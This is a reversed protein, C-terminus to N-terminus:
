QNTSVIITYSYEDLEILIASYRIAKKCVLAYHKIEGDNPTVSQIELADTDYKFVVSEPNNIVPYQSGGGASYGVLIHYTKSEELVYDNEELTTTDSHISNYVGYVDNDEPLGISAVIGYTKAKTSGCATLMLSLIILFLFSVFISLKKKM